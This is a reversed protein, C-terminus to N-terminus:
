QLTCRTRYQNCIVCQFGIKRDSLMNLTHMANMSQSCEIAIWYISSIGDLFRNILRNSKNQAAEEGEDNLTTTTVTVTTTMTTAARRMAWFLKNPPLVYSSHLRTGRLEFPINKQRTANSEFMKCNVNRTFTVVNISELTHITTSYKRKITKNFPNKNKSTVM